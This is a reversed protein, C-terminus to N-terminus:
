SRAKKVLKTVKNRLNKFKKLLEEDPQPDTSDGSSQVNKEGIKSQLLNRHKILKILEPTIWPKHMEENTDDIVILHTAKIRKIKQSNEDGTAENEEEDDDEESNENYINRLKLNSYPKRKRSEYYDCENLLQNICAVNSIFNSQPKSTIALQKNSYNKALYSKM